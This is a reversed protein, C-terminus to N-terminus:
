PRPMGTEAVDTRLTNSSDASWGAGRRVPEEHRVKKRACAALMSAQRRVAAVRCLQCVGAPEASAIQKASEDV